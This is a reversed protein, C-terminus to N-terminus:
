DRLEQFFKTTGETMCSLTSTQVPNCCSSLVDVSVGGAEPTDNGLTPALLM